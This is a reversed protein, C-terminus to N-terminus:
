ADEMVADCLEKLDNVADAIQRHQNDLEVNQAKMKLHTATQVLDFFKGENCGVLICSLQNMQSALAENSNLRLLIQEITLQRGDELIAAGGECIGQTYKAM